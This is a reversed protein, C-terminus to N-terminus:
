LRPSHLRPTVRVRNSTTESVQWGYAHAVARLALPACGLDTGAHGLLLDIAAGDSSREVEADAVALADLIARLAGALEVGDAPAGFGRRVEESDPPGLAALVAERAGLGFMDAWEPRVLAAAGPDPAGTPLVFRELGRVLCGPSGSLKGTVLEALAAVEDAVAPATVVLDNGYADRLGAHDDLTVLGAAGLAIDTQGNRWPRGATDSVVVGVHAGLAAFGERLRRASADPDLPLLVLSGAVVNSADVGAAAMVFGHHTRVIRTPGRRSVERDTGAMVAAQKDADPGRGSPPVVRGEVKSVVKSTVVVVDGDGVPTGARSWSAALLGALDDGEAVEGIGTAPWATLPGGNVGTM